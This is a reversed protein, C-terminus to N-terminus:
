LLDEASAYENSYRLCVSFMKSSFTHYLIEQFKRDGKICGEIIESETYTPKIAVAM